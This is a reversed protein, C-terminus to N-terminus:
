ESVYDESWIKINNRLKEIKERLDKIEADKQTITNRLKKMSMINATIKEKLIKNEMELRTPM